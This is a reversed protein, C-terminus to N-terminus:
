NKQNNIHLSDDSDKGEKQGDRQSIMASVVLGRVLALEAAIIHIAANPALGLSLLAARANRAVNGVM